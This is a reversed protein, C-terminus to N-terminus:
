SQLDTRSLLPGLRQLMRSIGDDLVSDAHHRAAALADPHGGAMAVGHGVGELMSADTIDDGFAAVQAPDIGRHKLLRLVMSGKTTGACTIFVVSGHDALHVCADVGLRLGLASSLGHLPVRQDSWVTIKCAPGQRAQEFPRQLHGAHSWLKLEHSSLTPSFASRDDASHIGIRIHSGFTESLDVAVAVLDAPLDDSVRFGSQRCRGISGNQFVGSDALWALPGLVQRASAEHRATAVMCALGRDRCSQVALITSTSPARGPVILTGDIDFVLATLTGM